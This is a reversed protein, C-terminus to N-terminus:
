SSPAGFLLQERLASIDRGDNILDLYWSGDRTDGYLVAGRVRNNELVLHKYVGRKPDRLVL